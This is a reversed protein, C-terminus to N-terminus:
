TLYLPTKRNNMMSEGMKNSTISVFCGDFYFRPLLLFNKEWFGDDNGRHTSRAYYRCAMGGHMGLM